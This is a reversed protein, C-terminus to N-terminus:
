RGSCTRHRRALFFRGPDPRHGRQLRPNAAYYDMPRYGETKLTLVESAREVWVPLLERRRDGRAARYQRRGAHRDHAGREHLIEHQRHRLGGQRRDFDAGVPRRGSLHAARQHRQLEPLFVVKLRDRVDPDRNIVDGVATILKIMLKALHYGPAAKGGFIFTRPEVALSPNSKIAHYLSVIHLVKLHQRKYEHIRKVLVDFM